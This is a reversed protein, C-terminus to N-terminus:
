NENQAMPFCEPITRAMSWLRPSNKAVLARLCAPRMFGEADQTSRISPSSVMSKHPGLFLQKTGVRVVYQRQTSPRVRRDAGVTTSM